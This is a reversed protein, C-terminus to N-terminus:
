NATMFYLLINFWYVPLWVIFDDIESKGYPKKAKRLM